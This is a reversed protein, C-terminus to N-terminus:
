SRVYLENYEKRDPNGVGERATMEFDNGKMIRLIDSSHSAPVEIMVSRLRKSALTTKMGTLVEPEHGDVDIKIHTPEPMGFFGTLTDLALAVCGQRYGTLKESVPIGVSHLAAGPGPVTDTYLSTSAARSSIAIPLATVLGSLGNLRINRNFSAFNEAEPEFGYANAGLKAAYLAYLGTNAGVDFFVDGKKVCRTIWEITGPERTEYRHARYWESYSGVSAYLTEDGM